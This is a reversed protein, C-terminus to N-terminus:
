GNTLKAIWRGGKSSARNRKAILNLVPGSLMIIALCQGAEIITLPLWYVDYAWKLAPFHYAAFVSLQIIAAAISTHRIYKALRGPYGVLAAFITLEVAACIAYYWGGYADAPAKFLYFVALVGFYILAVGLNCRDRLSFLVAIGALGLHWYELVLDFFTM